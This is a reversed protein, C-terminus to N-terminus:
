AQTSAMSTIRRRLGRIGMLLLVLGAFFPNFAGGGETDSTDGNVSGGGTSGGGTSGGGTSGGGTSGGGTSGGGTSGGGTSGGGTSGGGTSGGGTSGGGSSSGGSIAGTVSVDDFYASDNYSGVGVRGAGLSSDDTKLILTDDFYVSITSGTRNIKISHYANDNLWDGSDATALLTRNGDVVKFLQNYDPNNNFLMYYYSDSDQPHSSDSGQFGFVVAYDATANAAVDDSLRARLMITFDGYEGPLLSYEGLRGGGPSGSSTALYYAMSGKDMEVTWRSADSPTWGDATGDEFGDAIRYTFDKSSLSAITNPTKARDRIDSVSLTYFTDTALQSVTLSVVLGDDSLSAATVAIGLSIQYNTRDEADAINVAESFRVDVRTDSLAMASTLTPATSDVSVFLEADSSYISGESNTVQCRYTTEDDPAKVGIVTYSSNTAGTIPDNGNNRYWQYSLPGSGVAVVSFRADEGETVTVSVPQAVISPTVLASDQGRYAHTLTVVGLAWMNMKMPRGWRNVVGLYAPDQWMSYAVEYIGVGSNANINNLLPYDPNKGWKWSAPNMVYPVHFDLATKLGIPKGGSDEGLYNYLDVGHHRAVEATLTMAHIAYISYGLGAWGNTRGSEQGLRGTWHVQKPIANRFNRYAIDLLRQDGLFAGAISLFANRWNEFNNPAANTESQGFAYVANNGFTQVWAKFADKDTQEWGPYNWALDVGYIVGTMTGFLDMLSQNNSFRPLMGTVPDLAWVRVLEILKEAYRSNGTFAYAMGLDRVGIGLPKAAKEWDYRDAAGNYFAGTCFVRSGGCSNSGGFTVSVPKLGLAADAQEIMKRAASKWPEEGAVTVVGNNETISIKAKIAAIEQANILINPHQEHAIAATMSGALFINVLLAARLTKGFLRVISKAKVQYTRSCLSLSFFTM